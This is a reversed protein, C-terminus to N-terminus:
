LNISEWHNLKFLKLSTDYNYSYKWREIVHKGQYKDEIFTIVSYYDLVAKSDFYETLVKYEITYSNERVSITDYSMILWVNAEETYRKKKFIINYDNLPSLEKISYHYSITNDISPPVADDDKTCSLMSIALIAILIYKM